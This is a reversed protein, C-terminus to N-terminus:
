RVSDLPRWDGTQIFSAWYFPHRRAPKAIMQLQVKRLSDGRGDGDKLNRYYTSMLERTVRDSVPWLSMIMSEAGALQFARRLGFVGEGTKVEGMGTDCASLVVLKSGRLDLATVELATLIGDDSDGSRRVNAGALALGSRLLPNNRAISNDVTRGEVASGGMLGVPNEVFFGHTAIHIFKPSSVKRLESERAAGRALVKVAPFMSKIAKVEEETESLPTFFTESLDRATTISRAAAAPKGSGGEPMGFDPDAVVVPTGAVDRAESLKLLDRGSTLYSFTFDEVLYKGRADALAEFPVLNLDGDPSILLHKSSGIANRLPEFISAGANTALTKVNRSYPDRLSARFQRLERDIASAEGLDVAKINGAHDTVFAAYRANRYPDRPKSGGMAFEFRSRDVPRYVVFELLVADEPIAHAVDQPKVTRMRETIPGGRASIKKEITESESEFQSVKAKFVDLKGDVPGAIVLKAIKENAESWQDLLGRDDKDLRTRLAGITDSMSDLVRGKRQLISEMGIPAFTQSQNKPDFVITLALDSIMSLFDIYKLKEIESGSTLNLRINYEFIENARKLAAAAKDTKGMMSYLNAVNTLTGGLHPHFPGETREKLAITEEFLREAAEFEGKGKLIVALLNLPYTVYPHESGLSKKFSELSRRCFPEAKEFQGASSYLLALNYLSQAIDPHDPRLKAERIALARLYMSETRDIDWNANVANNIATAVDPHDPGLAKERIALVRTYLEVAKSEDGRLRLVNGLNNLVSAVLLHEPHLSRERIALAREFLAVAEPYRGLEKYILGYNNYISALSVHDPGLARSRNDIAKRYYEEAKPYDPIDSYINGVTFLALGVDPHDPGLERERIQLCRMAIPMAEAYKAARWLQTSSVLLRRAEDLARDKDTAPRTEKFNLVFKGPAAGRQRPEVSFVVPENATPCVLEVTEEGINRPDADFDLVPTGQGGMVRAGMDIGIQEITLKFYSNGTCDVQFDNRQGGEVGREVTDGPRIIQPPKSEPTPSQPLAPSGIVLNGVCLAMLRLSSRTLSFEEGLILM